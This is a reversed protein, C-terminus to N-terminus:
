DGGGGFDGGGFDGGGFDGGGDGGFFGGGGGGGDGAMFGGGTTETTYTDTVFPGGGYGGGWGGDYYGPGYGWGPGSILSGMALGGLFGTGAGFGDDHHYVHTAGGSVPYGQVVGGPAVQNPRNSNAM